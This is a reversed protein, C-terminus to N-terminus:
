QITINSVKMAKWDGAETQFYNFHMWPWHVTYVHAIAVFDMSMEAAFNISIHVNTNCTSYMHMQIYPLITTQRQKAVFTKIPLSSGIPHTYTIM